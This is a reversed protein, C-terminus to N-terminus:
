EYRVERKVPNLPLQASGIPTLHRYRLSEGYYWGKRSKYLSNKGV